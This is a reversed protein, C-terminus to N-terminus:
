RRKQVAEGYGGRFKLVQKTGGGGGSQMKGATAPVRQSKATMRQVLQLVQMKAENIRGSWIQM